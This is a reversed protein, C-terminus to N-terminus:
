VNVAVSPVHVPAGSVKEYWHCSHSAAPCAQLSMASAVPSVYVSARDSMPLVTRTTTVAAPAVLPTLESGLATTACAGGTLLQGGDSPVGVSPCVTSVMRPAQAPVAGIAKEYVQCRHSTSHVFMSPAVVGVYR